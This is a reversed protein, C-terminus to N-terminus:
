RAPFKRESIHQLASVLSTLVLYWFAAVVLLEMVRFNSTYIDSTRRLIEAYGIIYALSTNKLMTIYENGIAPLVIRIGQPIVIKQQITREALGLARAADRQGRDVGLMGSRVVEAMYGTEALSLGLLAAVFPTIVEITPKDLLVFNTFPIEIHLVRVMVPVANFWFLIQILMPTGRFVYVYAAALRSMVPDGSVRMLAVGIGLFIAVVTGVTALWLTHGVAPLMGEGFLFRGIVEVSVVGTRVASALVWVVILIVIGLEVWSKWPFPVVVVYDSSPGAPSSGGGGTPSPLVDNLSPKNTKPEKLSDKEM